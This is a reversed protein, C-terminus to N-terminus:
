VERARDRNLRMPAALQELVAHAAEVETHPYAARLSELGSEDVANYFKDVAWTLTRLTKTIDLPEAPPRSQAELLDDQPSLTALLHTVDREKLWGGTGLSEITQRVARHRQALMVAAIRKVRDAKPETV